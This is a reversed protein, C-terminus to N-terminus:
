RLTELSRDTWCDSRGEGRVRRSEEARLEVVHGERAAFTAPFLSQAQRVLQAVRHDDHCPDHHFLALQKVGAAAAIRCAEPITSHGWGIRCPGRRGCYEDETYQADYILLDTGKALDLVAPNLRGDALQETDTAYVMSVGGISIRYGLCPEPHNLAAARVTAEGIEIENGPDFPHFDLTARMAELPVPFHPRQMQRRLAAEVGHVGHGPGFIAFSNRPDYGPQFLPFGQIHDWHFHSVLITATVPADLYQGLRVLGTGADLIIRESGARVEVCSTNSGVGIFSPGGTAISGRVGWFRVELPAPDM